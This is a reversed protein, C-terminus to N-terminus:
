AIYQLVHLCKWRCWWGERDFFKKLAKKPDDHYYAEKEPDIEMEEGGGDDVHTSIEEM